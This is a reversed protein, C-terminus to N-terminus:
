RVKKTSQDFGKQFGTMFSTTLGEAVDMIFQDRSTFSALTLGVSPDPHTIKRQNQILRLFENLYWSYLLKRTSNEDEKMFGDYYLQSASAKIDSIKMDDYDSILNKDGLINSGRLLDILHTLQASIDVPSKLPPHFLMEIQDALKNESYIPQSFGPNFYHLSCSSLNVVIPIYSGSLSTSAPRTSTVREILDQHAESIPFLLFSIFNDARRGFGMKKKFFELCVPFLAESRTKLQDPKIVGDLMELIVFNAGRLYDPDRNDDRFYISKLTSFSKTQFGQHLLWRDLRQSLTNHDM